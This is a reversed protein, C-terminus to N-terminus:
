QRMQAIFDEPSMIIMPSAGNRKVQKKDRTLFFDCCGEYACSYQADDEFDGSYNKMAWDLDFRNVSSINVYHRIDEFFSMLTKHEVGLKRASYYTDLLSQISVQAELAGQKVATLISCAIGEPDRVVLVMDMLVNTDFYVKTRM